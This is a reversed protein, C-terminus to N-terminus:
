KFSDIFNNILINWDLKERVFDSLQQGIRRNNEPTEGMLSRIAGVFGSIKNKGLPVIHNGGKVRRDAFEAYPVADTYIGRLGAANMDMVSMGWGEMQSASFAIGMHFSNKGSAYPIGIMPSMHEDPVRGMFFVNNELNLDTRLSELKNYLDGKRPGTIMMIPTKDKFVGQDISERMMHLLDDKRKTPDMRSADIMVVHNKPSELMYEVIGEPIAESDVAWNYFAKQQPYSLSSYPIYRETDTGPSFFGINGQNAGLKELGLTIPDSTSFNMRAPISGGLAHWGSLQIADTITDSGNVILRENAERIDLNLSEFYERNSGGGSRIVNELKLSALSHPTWAHYTKIHAVAQRVNEPTINYHELIKLGIQQATQHSGVQIGLSSILSPDRLVLNGIVSSIDNRQNMSFHCDLTNMALPLALAEPLVRNLFSATARREWYGLLEQGVRGADVYHSSIIGAYEWPEMNVLTSEREILTALALAMDPIESYIQEKPIFENSQSPLFLMRLLPSQEDIQVGERAGFKDLITQDNVDFGRGVISVKYGRQLLQKAKENVYTIQGGSDPALPYGKAYAYGHTNLLFVQPKPSYIFGSNLANAGIGSLMPGIRSGMQVTASLM